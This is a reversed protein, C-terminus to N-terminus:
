GLVAYFSDKDRKAQRFKEEMTPNNKTLKKITLAEAKDNALRLNNESGILEAKVDQLKKITADIDDIASKFKKSALNYNYGFKKKFEELEDTYEVLHMPIGIKACMLACARNFNSCPGGATLVVDYKEVSVDALIYQLMRAKNGGGVEQFLDDRKCLLNIGLKQSYYPLHTIPTPSFDLHKM